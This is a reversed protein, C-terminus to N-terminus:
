HARRSYPCIEDPRGGARLAMTISRSRHWTMPCARTRPSRAHWGVEVYRPWRVPSRLTAAAGDAGQVADGAELVSIRQRGRWPIAYPYDPLSTLDGDGGGRLVPRATSYAALSNGQPVKGVAGRRVARSGKWTLCSELPRCGSPDPQRRM